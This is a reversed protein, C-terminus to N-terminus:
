PIQEYSAIAGNRVHPVTLAYIAHGARSSVSPRAAANGLTMPLGPPSKM